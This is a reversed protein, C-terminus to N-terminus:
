NQRSGKGWVNFIVSKISHKQNFQESRHSKTLDPHTHAPRTHRHTHSCWRSNRTDSHRAYLHSAPLPCGDTHSSGWTNPDTRIYAHASATDPLATRGASGDAPRCWTRSDCNNHEQPISPYFSYSFVLLKGTWATYTHRKTRNTFFTGSLTCSIYYNIKGGSHIFMM